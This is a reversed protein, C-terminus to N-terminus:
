NGSRGPAGFVWKITSCVFVTPDGQRDWLTQPFFYGLELSVAFQLDSTGVFGVERLCRLVSEISAPDREEPHRLTVWTSLFRVANERLLGNTMRLMKHLQLRGNEISGPQCNGRSHWPCIPTLVRPLPRWYQGERKSRDTATFIFSYDGKSQCIQMFHEAAVAIKIPEIIYGLMPEEDTINKWSTRVSDSETHSSVAGIMATFYDEGREARRREVNSMVQLASRQLYGAIIVDSLLDETIDVNPLRLRVSLESYPPKVRGDGEIFKRQYAQKIEGLTNLLQIGDIATRDANGEAVFLWSNQGKVNVIEQYTWARTVWPDTDFSELARIHDM